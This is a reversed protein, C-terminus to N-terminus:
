RQHRRLHHSFSFTADCKLCSFRVGEHKAGIHAKLHHTNKSKYDCKECFYTTDKEAPYCDRRNFSIEDESEFYKEEQPEQSFSRRLRDISDFGKVQFRDAIEFFGKISERSIETRGTYMFDILAELHNHSVGTLFIVPNAQQQPIESLLQRFKLSYSSLVIKHATLHQLDDSVLTVDSFIPERRWTKLIEASKENFEGM